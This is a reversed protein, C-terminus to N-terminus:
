MPASDWIDEPRIGTYVMLHTGIRISIGLEPDKFTKALEEGTPIKDLYKADVSISRSPLDLEGEVKRSRLFRAHL